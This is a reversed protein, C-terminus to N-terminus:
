PYFRSLKPNAVRDRGLATVALVNVRANADGTRRCPRFNSININKGNVYQPVYEQKLKRTENNKEKIKECLEGHSVLNM